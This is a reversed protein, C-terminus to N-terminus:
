SKPVEPSQPSALLLTWFTKYKSSPNHIVAIGMDTADKLLLNENHKENNQWKKLLEEFSTQGTGVNEAVFKVNYGSSKARDWANTGDTGIHFFQDKSSMDKSHKRAALTLYVNLKLPAQGTKTRYANIEKQAILPNLLPGYTTAQKPKPTEDETQAISEPKALEIDHQVIDDPKPSHQVKALTIKKIKKKQRKKETPLANKKQVPIRSNDSNISQESTDTFSLRADKNKTESACSSLIACILILVFKLFAFYM